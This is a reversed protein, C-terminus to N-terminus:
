KALTAKLFWIQKNYDTVHAELMAVASFWNEKDCGDRLSIAEDRMTELDALVISLAENCKFKKTKEEKITAIKLYEGMESVPLTNFMKFHEAVEDMREFAKTYEAETFLHVSMFTEGEVNWHLNHFKISLVALNALYKNFDKELKM